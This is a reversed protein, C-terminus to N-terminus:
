NGTRPWLDIHSRGARVEELPENSLDEGAIWPDHLLENATPREDVNTSLLRMLLTKAAPSVRDWVPADFAVFNGAIIRKTVEKDNADNTPDFPHYGCLLIFMVVGLSFIDAKATCPQRLCPM